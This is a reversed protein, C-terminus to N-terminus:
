NKDQELPKYPIHCGGLGTKETYKQHYEEAIHFDQQGVNSIETVIPEEFQEQVSNKASQATKFQEDSLCFIASRYNDGIDPGQGNAQTPDHMRFFHRTLDRFSVVQPDFEIKVVEDAHDDRHYVSVDEYTPHKLHGGEYGVLTNVVGPVQDFYAQVGWFCGAGFIATETKAM